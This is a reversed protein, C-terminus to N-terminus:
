VRHGPPDGIELALDSVGVAELDVLVELAHPVDFAADLAGLLALVVVHRLQRLGLADGGREGLVDRQHEVRLHQSM